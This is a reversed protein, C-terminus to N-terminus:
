AVWWGASDAHRELAERQTDNLTWKLDPWPTALPFRRLTQLGLRLSPSVGVDFV